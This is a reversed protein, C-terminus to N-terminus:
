LNFAQTWASRLEELVTTAEAIKGKRICEKAYMYLGMLGGAMEEYDFNLGLMLQTIARHALDYDKKKLAFIATDYLKKIVQVPMLNVLHERRYSNAAIAIAHQSGAKMMQAHQEASPTQQVEEAELTTILNVNATEM